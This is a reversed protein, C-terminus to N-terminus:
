VKTKVLRVFKGLNPLFLSERVSRLRLLSATPGESRQVVVRLLTALM